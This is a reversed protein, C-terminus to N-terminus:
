QQASGLILTIITKGEKIALVVMLRQDGKTFTLLTDTEAIVPEASSKWGSKPLEKQYFAAADAMGTSSEYTLQGPSSVVNSADPLQPADILGAPCDAPVEFAIKKGVDTLEYEVDLKGEVGEGFYDAKATRSILYKVVYGSKTEVWLEGTAEVLGDEGIAHQDFTYHNTSVNNIKETGAEDAGSVFGLFGAPEFRDGLSRGPEVVTSICAGDGHREDAVGGLELMFVPDTDALDGTKEITLQRAAPDKVVLMVYTKTWKVPTGAHTGHFSVALTATYSTLDALGVKPDPLQFPGTGYTVDKHITVERVEPTLAPTPTPIAATATNCALSVILPVMVLIASRNGFLSRMM